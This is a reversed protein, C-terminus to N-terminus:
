VSAMGALLRRLNFDRHAGESPSCVQRIVSWRDSVLVFLHLLKLRLRDSYRIRLENQLRFGRVALSFPHQANGSLGFLIEVSLHIKKKVVRIRNSYDNSAEGFYVFFDGYEYVCVSDSANALCRAGTWSFSM